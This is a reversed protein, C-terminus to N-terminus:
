ILSAQLAAALAGLNEFIFDPKFPSDAVDARRTEGSLVLVTMMGAQGLAIDTYLRDGVMTLREVPQQTREALAAVIPAHPKGIIEDPRRGTSAEVFAIMAGIDPMYGNQIPCNNDPHTAYYPYGARVLDCLQWLRNYTLTTDFGLVVFDPATNVLQFGHAKFEEELAPTGMLFVKAGPIKQGLYVATAEGSTFIRKEDVGIGLQTLRQAYQSRQRSSNNTLFVYPTGRRDLLRIFDLAGPLLRDELYVTGDMDLVFCGTQTLRDLEVM